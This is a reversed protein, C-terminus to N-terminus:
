KSNKLLDEPKIGLKNMQELVKQCAAKKEEGDKERARRQSKDKEGTRRQSSRDDVRRQSKHRERGQRRKSEAAREAKEHMRKRLEQSLAQLRQTRVNLASYQSSVLRADEHLKKELNRRDAAWSDMKEKVSNILSLAEKEDKMSLAGDKVRLYEPYYQDEIDLIYGCRSPSDLAKPAASLRVTERPQVAKQQADSESSEQSKNSTDTESSSGEGSGEESSDKTEEKVEATRRRTRSRSRNRLRLGERQSSRQPTRQAHPSKTFQTKAFAATVHHSWPLRLKAVQHYYERIVRQPWDRDCYFCRSQWPLRSLYVSGKKCSCIVKPEPKVRDFQIRLHPSGNQFIDSCTPWHSEDTTVSCTTKAPAPAEKQKKSPMESSIGSPQGSQSPESPHSLTGCALSEEQEQALNAAAHKNKSVM